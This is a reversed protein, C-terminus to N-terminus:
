HATYLASLPSPQAMIIKWGDITITGFTTSEIEMAQDKTRLILLEPEALSARIGRVGKTGLGLRCNM